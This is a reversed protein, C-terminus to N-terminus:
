NADWVDKVWYTKQVAYVRNQSDFFVTQYRRPGTGNSEGEPYLWVMGKARMDANSVPSGEEAMQDASEIFNTSDVVRSPKGLSAFVENTTASFLKPQTNKQVPTSFVNIYFFAAIFAAFAITLRTQFSMEVNQVTENPKGM